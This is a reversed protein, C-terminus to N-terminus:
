SNLRGELKRFLKREEYKAEGWKRREVVEGKGGSSREVSRGEGGSGGTKIGSLMHGYWKAHGAGQGGGGAASMGRQSRGGRLPVGPQM